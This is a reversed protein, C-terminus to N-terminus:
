YCCYSYRQFISKVIQETKSQLLLFLSLSFQRKFRMFVNNLPLISSPAIELLPPSGLVEEHHSIEMNKTRSITFDELNQTIEHIM